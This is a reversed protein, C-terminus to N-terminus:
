NKTKPNYTLIAVAVTAALALIVLGLTLGVTRPTSFQRLAVRTNADRVIVAEDTAGVDSGGNSAGPSLDTRSEPSRLIEYGNSDLAQRVDLRLTDGQVSMVYGELESVQRLLTGEAGDRRLPVDAPVAFSVRARNAPLAPRTATVPRYAHCAVALLLALPPISRSHRSM